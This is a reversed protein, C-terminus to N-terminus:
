HAVSVVIGVCFTGVVAMAQLGYIGVRGAYATADVYRFVFREFIM